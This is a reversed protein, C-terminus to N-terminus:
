YGPVPLIIDEHTKDVKYVKSEYRYVVQGCRRLANVNFNVQKSRFDFWKLVPGM